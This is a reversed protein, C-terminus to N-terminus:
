IKERKVKANKQYPQGEELSKFYSRGPEADPVRKTSQQLM